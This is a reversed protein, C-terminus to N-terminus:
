APLVPGFSVVPGPTAYHCIPEGALERVGAAASISEDLEHLTVARLRWPEHEIAETFLVPGVGRSYLRYRECLFVDRQTKEIPDGVTFRARFRPGRGHRMSEYFGDGRSMRAHFYPLRITARAALVALLNSAELSFFWIGPGHSPLTVYTRFNLEHFDPMAPMWRLRGRRLTFPTFSVWASGELEDIALRAPVLPRLMRADVRFHIFLLERWEQSGVEIL